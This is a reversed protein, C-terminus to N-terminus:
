FLAEAEAASARSAQMYPSVTPPVRPQRGLLLDNVTIIQIRPFPADFHPHKYTGAHNAEDLMGRTPEGNVILLGMEAQQTTVTGGLDRNSRCINM